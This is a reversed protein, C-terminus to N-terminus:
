TAQVDCWDSMDRALWSRWSAVDCRCYYTHKYREHDAPRPHM